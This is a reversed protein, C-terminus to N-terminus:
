DGERGVVSLNHGAGPISSDLEPVSETVALKRDSLLPM